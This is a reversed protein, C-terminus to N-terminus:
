RVGHVSQSPAINYRPNWDDDAGVDFVEALIEKERALRYRGCMSLTYPFGIRSINEEGRPSTEAHLSFCRLGLARNSSDRKSVAPATDERPPM